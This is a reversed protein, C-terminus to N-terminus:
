GTERSRLLPSWAKELSQPYAQGKGGTGAAPGPDLGLSELLGLAAEPLGSIFYDEGPCLPHTGM